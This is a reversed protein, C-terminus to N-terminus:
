VQIANLVKLHQLQRVGCCKLPNIKLTKVEFDILEGCDGLAVLNCM